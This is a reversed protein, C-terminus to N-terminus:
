QEYQIVENKPEGNQYVNWRGIKNGNKYEGSYTVINVYQFSNELDMWKCNKLGDDDYFGGGIQEWTKNQQRYNIGWKGFKQGNKYEGNYTVLYERSFQNGNYENFADFIDIWKGTKLGYQDYSGQCIQEKNFFVNWQGVKLGNKYVGNYTVEYNCNFQVNLDVWRGTKIGQEDYLGGGFYQNEYCDNWIGVKSGNKYQEMTLSQVNVLFLIFRKLVEQM